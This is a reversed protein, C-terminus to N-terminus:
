LVSWGHPSAGNALHETHRATTTMRCDADDADRTGSRTAYKHRSSGKTNWSSQAAEFVGEYEAVVQGPFDDLDAGAHRAELNAVAHECEAPAGVLGDLIGRLAGEPLVGNHEFVQRRLQRGVHVVGAARREWEGHGRRRRREEVLGSEAQLQRCLRPLRGRALRDDDPTARGAHAGVRDLQGDRGPVLHERRGPGPVVLRHAPQAGGPHPVVLAARRRALDRRREVLLALRERADHRDPEARGLLADADHVPDAAAVLEDGHRRIRRRLLDRLAKGQEAHPYRIHGGQQRVPDAARHPPELRRQHNDIRYQGIAKSTAYEPIEQGLRQLRATINRSRLGLNDAVPQFVDLRGELLQPLAHRRLLNDDSKSTTRPPLQSNRKRIKHKMRMFENGRPPKQNSLYNLPIIGSSMSAPLCNSCATGAGNGAHSCGDNKSMQETLEPEVEVFRQWSTCIGYEAPGHGMILLSLYFSVSMGRIRCDRPDEPTQPSLYLSALIRMTQRRRTQMADARPFAVDDQRCSLRVMAPVTM